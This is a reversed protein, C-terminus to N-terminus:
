MRRREINKYLAFFVIVVAVLVVLGLTLANVIRALGNNRNSSWPNSLASEFFTITDSLSRNSRLAAYASETSAYGDSVAASIGKMISHGFAFIDSAGKTIGRAVTDSISFVDSINVTQGAHSLAVNDLFAITESIARGLGKITSDAFTFSDTISAFVKKTTV